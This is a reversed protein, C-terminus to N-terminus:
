GAGLAGFQFGDFVVFLFDFRPKVRRQLETRRPQAANHLQAGAAHVGVGDAV